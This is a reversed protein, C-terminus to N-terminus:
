KTVRRSENDVTDYYESRQVFHYQMYFDQWVNVNLRQYWKLEM